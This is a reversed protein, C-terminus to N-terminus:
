GATAGSEYRRPFHLPSSFAFSAVGGDIGERITFFKVEIM